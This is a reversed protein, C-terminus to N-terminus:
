RPLVDIQVDTTGVRGNYGEVFVYYSGPEVAIEILSLTGAGGDDNCALGVAAADGDCPSRIYLATDFDGNVTEVRLTSPTAVAVVIIVEPGPGALACPRPYADAQGNLDVAVRGSNGDFYVLDDRLDCSAPAFCNRAAAPDCVDGAVAATLCDSARDLFAPPTRGSADLGTCTAQCDAVDDFLGCGMAVVPTCLEVCVPNAVAGLARCAALEAGCAANEACPLRFPLEPPEPTCDLRCLYPDVAGDCATLADCYAECDATPAPPEFGVCAAVGGCALGTRQADALCIAADRDPAAACAERCDPDPIRCRDISACVGECDVMPEGAPICARLEDCRGGPGVDALCAAAAGFRLTDEDGFGAVCANMCTTRDQEAEPDCDTTAQCWAFCPGVAAGAADLCVAFDPCTEATACAVEAPYDPGGPERTGAVCGQVCDLRSVGLGVGCAEKGECLVSCRAAVDAPPADIFCQDLRACDDAAGIACANIRQRQRRALPDPDFCADICEGERVLNCAVGAECAAGCQPFTVDITCRRFAEVDCVGGYLVEGCQRFPVDSEECDAICQGRPYDVGCEAALDCVAACSLPEIPPVPCLRLLNCQELEVCQWWDVPPEVRSVRQCHSLCDDYGEFDRDVRECEAYRGCTDECSEIRVAGMDPPLARDPTADPAADPEADGADLEPRADPAADAAADIAADVTADLRLGVEPDVLADPIPDDGGDGQPLCAVLAGGVLALLFLSAARTM